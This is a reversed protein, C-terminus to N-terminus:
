SAMLPILFAILNQHSFFVLVHQSAQNPSQVSGNRTLIVFFIELECTGAFQM